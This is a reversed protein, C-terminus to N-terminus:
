MTHNFKCVNCQCSPGDWQKIMHKFSNLNDAWKLENPLCDWIQPGIANLSKSDFTVQNPRSHSLNNPTSIFLFKYYISYRSFVQASPRQGPGPSCLTATELLSSLQYRTCALQSPTLLIAYFIWSQSCYISINFGKNIALRGCSFNFVTYM